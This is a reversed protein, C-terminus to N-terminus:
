CCRWRVLSLVVLKIWVMKRKKFHRQYMPNTKVKSFTKLLISQLPKKQVQKSAAFNDIKRYLFISHVQLIKETRNKVANNFSFHPAFIVHKFAGNKATWGDKFFFNCVYFSCNILASCLKLCSIPGFHAIGFTFAFWALFSLKCVNSGFHLQWFANKLGFANLFNGKHFCHSLFHSKGSSFRKKSIECSLFNHKLLLHIPAPDSIGVWGLYVKTEANDLSFIGFNIWFIVNFEFHRWLIRFTNQM